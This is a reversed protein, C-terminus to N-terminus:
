ITLDEWDEKERQSLTIQIKTIGSLRDHCRATLPNTSLDVKELSPAEEIVEVEVYYHPRSDKM